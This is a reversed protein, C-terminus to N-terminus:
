CFFNLEDSYEAPDEDPYSDPEFIPQGLVIAGSEVAALIRDRADCAVANRARNWEASQGLDTQVGIWRTRSSGKYRITVASPSVSM